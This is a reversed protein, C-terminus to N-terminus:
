GQLQLCYPNESIDATQGVVASMLPSGSHFGSIQLLRITNSMLSLLSEWDFASQMYMHKTKVGTALKYGQPHKILGM